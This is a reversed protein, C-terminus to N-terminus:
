LSKFSQLRDFSVSLLVGPSTASVLVATVQHITSIAILNWYKAYSYVNLLLLDTMLPDWINIFSPKPVTSGECFFTDIYPAKLIIGIM